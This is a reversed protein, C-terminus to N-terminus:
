WIWLVSSQLFCKQQVKAINVYTWKGLYLESNEMSFKMWINELTETYIKSFNM